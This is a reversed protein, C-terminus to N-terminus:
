MSLFKKKSVNSKLYINLIKDTLKANETLEQFNRFPVVKNLKRLYNPLGFTSYIDYTGPAPTYSNNVNEKRKAM